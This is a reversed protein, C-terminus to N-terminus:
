QAWNHRTSGLSKRRVWVRPMSGQRQGAGNECAGLVILPQVFAVPHWVPCHFLGLSSLLAAVVATAVRNGLLAGIYKVTPLWPLYGASTLHTGVTGMRVDTRVLQWCVWVIVKECVENKDMKFICCNEVLGITCNCGIQKLPKEEERSYKNKDAM